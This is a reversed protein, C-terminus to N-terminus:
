LETLEMDDAEAQSGVHGAFSTGSNVTAKRANGTVMQVNKM